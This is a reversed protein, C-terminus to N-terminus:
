ASSSVTAGPKSSTLGVEWQVSGWNLHSVSFLDSEVALELSEDTVLPADTCAAAWWSM